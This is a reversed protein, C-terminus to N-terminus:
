TNETHQHLRNRGLDNMYLRDARGMMGNLPVHHVFGFHAFLNDWAEIAIENIHHYHPKADGNAASFWVVDAHSVCNEVVKSAFWPEIHEAVETCMVLDFSKNFKELFKLNRKMIREPPIGIDFLKAVGGETGEVALYDLKADKFHRTIEGGGTGLELISIFARGFLTRYTLQMYEYLERSQSYTPHGGGGDAFYIPAYLADLSLYKFAMPCNLNTWWYTGYQHYGLDHEQNFVKFTEEKMLSVIRYGHWLQDIKTVTHQGVKVSSGRGAFNALFHKIKRLIKMNIRKRITRIIDFLKLPLTRLTV